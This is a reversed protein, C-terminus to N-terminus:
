DNSPELGVLRSLAIYAQGQEDYDIYHRVRLGIRQNKELAIPPAHLLGQQGDRMLTFGDLEGQQSSATGWLRHTEYLVDDQTVHADSLYRGSWGDNGRWVLLEGAEGFLRAQQLTLTRLTVQVEAFAEGSLHLQEGAVKGWIVGDDNHALFYDLGRLQGQAAFWERPNSDFNTFDLDKDIQWKPGSTTM